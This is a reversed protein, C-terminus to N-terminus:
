ARSLVDDLARRIERTAAAPDEAISVATMVAIGYAGAEMVAEVRDATIGAIAIVPIPVASCVTALGDIGRVPVPNAKSGTPYVPGFGIYTAGDEWARRAEAPTAATAGIVFDDTLLRRAEAIPFDMQGLHIGSAGVALTIDLSDNVVFPIGAQRCIEAARRAEHLRHRPGGFKQRFQVVDAGGDIAFRCLDAHSFRQQFHYDTLVHFRGPAMRPLPENRDRAIM